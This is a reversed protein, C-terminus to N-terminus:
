TNFWGYLKLVRVVDGITYATSGVGGTFTSAVNVAGGSNTTFGTTTGASTLQASPTAGFVGIGSGSVDLIKTSGNVNNFVLSESFDDLLTNLIAGTINGTGNTTIKSTTESVLGSKSRLTAM